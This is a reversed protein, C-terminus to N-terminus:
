DVVVYRVGNVAGLSQMLQPRSVPWSVTHRFEPLAVGSRASRFVTVHSAFPREDFPVGWKRLLSRVCDAYRDLIPNPGGGAWLVRARDFRGVRDLTWTFSAFADNGIGRLAAALAHADHAALAGIFALTLHLNAAAVRRAGPM